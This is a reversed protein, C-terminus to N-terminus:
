NSVGLVSVTGKLTQKVEETGYYVDLVWYYTGTAVYRGNRKGNWGAEFDDSEWVKEGWRNFIEMHHKKVGSWGNEMPTFDDNDGDGNPTIVNPIKVIFLEFRTTDSSKCPGDTVEVYYYPNETNYNSSTVIFFQNGSGDQWVYQDFGDGADLEIAEGELIIQDQGLDVEPVPFVTVNVQDSETGCQNSVEVTYNGESFVEYQYDGSEGNWTYEYPGQITELILSEGECMEDNGNLDAVPKQIGEIFITDLSSCNDSDTVEVYYSGGSTATYVTETSNDQWIYDSYGQGPDLYLTDGLCLITDQGLNIDPSTVDVFLEDSAPCGFINTITVSYYGSTLVTYIPFTSNDQWLYSSYQSGPDLTLSTGSCITTDNGIFVNPTPNININVTDAGTCGYIDIVDVWYTGPTNVNMFPDTSGDQWLIYIFGEGIDLVYDDGACITTDNGISVEVAPSLNIQITDSGLCGYQDTVNVWYYGPQSIENTQLTTGDFWYYSTWGSGADLLLTEGAQCLVTDNGLDADVEPFYDIYISDINICGMPDSVLVWYWGEQGATYVTDQSGNQWLYTSYGGGPDLLLESDYCITTDPGLDIQPGEAVVFKVSDSVTNGCNDTIEVVYYATSDVIITAISDNIGLGQWEYSYPAAGYMVSVFVTVEQGQCVLTSDLLETQMNLYEEITVDISDTAVCGYQNMVQVWYTGTTDVSITSDTSGTSWWYSSQGGGANLMLTDNECLTITTDNGLDVKPENTIRMNDMLIYGWYPNTGTYYAELVIDTIEYEDPSVSFEHTEWEENEAAPSQWLMNTKNCVTNHGYIRLTIPQMTLGNVTQTFALDIKFIYCSDVSLPINLNSHIDEWTFNDRATMGVYTTGHSPPLFVGWNGPQTDPTSNGPTCIAWGPPPIHPMPTGEFSPNPLYQAFSIKVIFLLLIAAVIKIPKFIM